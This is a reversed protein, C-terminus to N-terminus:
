TSAFPSFYFEQALFVLTEATLSCYNDFDSSTKWWNPMSLVLLNLKVPKLM